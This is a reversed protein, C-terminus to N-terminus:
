SAGEVRATKRAGTNMSRVVIDAIRRVQADGVRATGRRGARVCVTAHVWRPDEARHVGRIAMRRGPPAGLARHILGAVSCCPGANSSRFDDAYVVWARLFAPRDAAKWRRGEQREGRRTTVTTGSKVRSPARM